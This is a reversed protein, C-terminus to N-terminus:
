IAVQQPAPSLFAAAQLMQMRWISCMHKAKTGMFFLSKSKQTHAKLLSFLGSNWSSPPFLKLLKKLCLIIKAVKTCILSTLISPSQKETFSLGREERLEQHTEMTHAFSLGSDAFHLLSIIGQVCVSGWRFPMYCLFLLKILSYESANNKLVGIQEQFYFLAFIFLNVM